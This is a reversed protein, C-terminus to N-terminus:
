RCGKGHAEPRQKEGMGGGESGIVFGPCKSMEDELNMKEKGGTMGMMVAVLVGSQSGTTQTFRVVSAPRLTSFCVLSPCRPSASITHPIHTTQLPTSM